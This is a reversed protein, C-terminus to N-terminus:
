GLDLEALREFMELGRLLPEIHADNSKPDLPLPLAMAIEDYVGEALRVADRCRRLSGVEDNTLLRENLTRIADWSQLVEQNRQPISGRDEPYLEDSAIGNLVEPVRRRLADLEHFAIRNLLACSMYREVPLRGGGVPPNFRDLSFSRLNSWWGTAGASAGAAGLFPTLIDSYGNIVPFGNVGLAHNIFM